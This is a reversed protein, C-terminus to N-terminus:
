GLAASACGMLRSPVHTLSSLLTKSARGQLLEALIKSGLIAIGIMVKAEGGMGDDNIHGKRVM